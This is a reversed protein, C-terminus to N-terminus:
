APTRSCHAGSFRDSEPTVPLDPGICHRPTIRGRRLEAHGSTASQQLRSALLVDFSRVIVELERQDNPVEIKDDALEIVLSVTKGRRGNQVTHPRLSAISDCRRARCVGHCELVRGASNVASVFNSSTLNRPSRVPSSDRSCSMVLDSTVVFHRTVAHCTM